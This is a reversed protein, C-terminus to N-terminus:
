SITSWRSGLARAQPLQRSTRPWLVAVLLLVQTCVGSLVVFVLSDVGSQILAFCNMAGEEEHPVV